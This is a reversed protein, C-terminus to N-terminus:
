ESGAGLIGDVNLNESAIRALRERTTENIPAVLLARARTMAVYLQNIGLMDDALYDLDALVVASNEMGKFAFIPAFTIAAVPWESFHKNDM